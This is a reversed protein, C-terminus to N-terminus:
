HRRPEGDRTGAPRYTTKGPRERLDMLRRTFASYNVSADYDAEWRQRSARGKAAAVDRNDVLTLIADAIQSPSPNPGVVVGNDHSVIEPNGGVSTAIAPIGCSIAEMIAVPTGESVSANLFTDVPEDRYFRMLAQRGPYAPFSAKANPPLVTRAEEELSAKLEGDGFHHWQFAVDPRRKAACVIGRLILDVRKVPVVRSCSAISFKGSPSKTAVFGPDAVGMHGIECRAAFWPYREKIYEVGRESDPFLRDLDALTVARCPIYAPDHREPYLDYGHARSVVVLEPRESKSLVLGTTIYDCWFTYAVADAATTGRAPWRQNLWGRALEARTCAGILRKMGRPSTILSPRTALEAWLLRLFSARFPLTLYASYSALISSLTEDVEIGQPVPGLRGGRRGPIVIIRQFETWFYDFEPEVFNGELSSEFPYSGTFV